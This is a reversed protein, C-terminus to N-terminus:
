KSRGGLSFLHSVDLHRVYYQKHSGFTASKTISPDAILKGTSRDFIRMEWEFTNRVTSIWEHRKSQSVLKVPNHQIQTAMERHGATRPPDLLELSGERSPNDLLARSHGDLLCDVALATRQPHVFDTQARSSPQEGVLSPPHRARYPQRQDGTLECWAM